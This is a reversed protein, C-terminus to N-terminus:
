VNASPDHMILDAASDLRREFFGDRLYAGAPRRLAVFIIIVFNEVLVSVSAVEGVVKRAAVIGTRILILTRM